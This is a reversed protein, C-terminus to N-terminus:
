RNQFALPWDIKLTGEFGTAIAMATQQQALSLLQPAPQWRSLMAHIDAVHTDLSRKRPM